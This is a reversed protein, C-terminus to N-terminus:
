RRGGRGCTAGLRCRRRRSNVGRRWGVGAGREVAWRGRLGRGEESGDGQGEGGEGRGHCGGEGGGAGFEHAPAARVEDGDGEGDEGGGADEPEPPLAALAPPPDDAAAEGEDDGHLEDAFEGPAGEAVGVARPFPVERQVEAGEHADDGDDGEPPVRAPGAGEDVEADEGGADLGEDGRGHCVAVGAGGEEDEEDRVAQEHDDGEGDGHEDAPAGAAPVVQAADQEHVGVHQEDDGDVVPEAGVVAVGFARGDGAGQEVVEAGGGPVVEPDLEGDEGDEAEHHEGDVVLPLLSASKQGRGGGLFFMGFPAAGAAGKKTGPCFSMEM